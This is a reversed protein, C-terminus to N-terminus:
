QGSGKKIAEIANAIDYFAEKLNDIKYDRDAIARLCYPLDASVELGDDGNIAAYIIHSRKGTGRKVTLRM